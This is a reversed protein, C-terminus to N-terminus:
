TQFKKKEAHDKRKEIMHPENDFSFRKATNGAQALDIRSWSYAHIFVGGIFIKKDRAIKIFWEPSQPSFFVLYKEFGIICLM